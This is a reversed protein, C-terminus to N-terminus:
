RNQAEVNKYVLNKYFFSHVRKPSRADLCERQHACSLIVFLHMEMFMLVSFKSLNRKAINKLVFLFKKLCFLFFVLLLHVQM